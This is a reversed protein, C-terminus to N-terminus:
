LQLAQLETHCIGPQKCSWERRLNQELRIKKYVLIFIATM